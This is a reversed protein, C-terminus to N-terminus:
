APEPENIATNLPQPPQRACRQRRSRPVSGGSRAGVPRMLEGAQVRVSPMHLARPRQRAAPLARASGAPSACVDALPSAVAQHLVPERRDAARGTWKCAM